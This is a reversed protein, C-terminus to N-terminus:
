AWGLATELNSTFARLLRDYDRKQVPSTILAARLSKPASKLLGEMPRLSRSEKLVRLMCDHTEQPKFNRFEERLALYMKTNPLDPAKKGLLGLLKISEGLQLSDFITLPHVQSACNISKRVVKTTGASDLLLVGVENPTSSLVKQIHHESTMVNVRAFVRQYSSVQTELRDLKDRESKIEYVTSTGNLIAIDAKSNMVRFETLMSATELSHECYLQSHTLAAKYVYECRRSSKSFSELISDFIAGILLTKPFADHLGSERLLRAFMPSKGSKAFDQIIASSFLREATTLQVSNLSLVKNPSSRM